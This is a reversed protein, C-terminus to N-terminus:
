KWRGIASARYTTGDPIASVSLLSLAAKTPINGFGDGWTRARNAAMSVVPINVFPAPFTWTQVSSAFLSGAASSGSSTGIMTCIMTGDPFRVYEGNLNSGRDPLIRSWDKWSGGFYRRVWISDGDNPTTAYATQVRTGDSLQRHDVICPTTPGQSGTYRYVGSSTLGNIDTVVASLAIMVNADIRDLNANLKSGWTNESSGIEPKVLELRTTTTDAM